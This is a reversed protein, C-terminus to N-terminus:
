PITNQNMKRFIDDLEKRSAHKIKDATGYTIELDGSGLRKMVANAFEDVHVGFTHRGVGGLDTDVAPPIIEIVKVSTNSLQHRLSLTFSHLAAKTACYVPVSALPSFALASTINIIAANDKQQLHPIFLRSLHMPAELNVAIEQRTQEWEEHQIFQLPRQIGANNVLVNLRPFERVVWSFLSIRESERSVDNVRINIQPYIKKAELLKNERRGCIIVESGAQLFREALAFGIGSAGGTIIVTNSTLQV